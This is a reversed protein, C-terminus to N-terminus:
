YFSYDFTLSSLNVSTYTRVSILGPWLWFEWSPAWVFPCSAPDSRLEKRPRSTNKGCYTPFRANSCYLFLFAHFFHRENFNEMGNLRSVISIPPSETCLNAQGPALCRFFPLVYCNKRDELFFKKFDVYFKSTNPLIKRTTCCKKVYDTSLNSSAVINMKWQLCNFTFQTRPFPVCIPIPAFTWRWFCWNKVLSLICDFSLFKLKDPNWRYQCVM